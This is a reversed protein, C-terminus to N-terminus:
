PSHALCNKALWASHVQRFKAATLTVVAADVLEGRYFHFKPVTAVLDFGLKCAYSIAPLNSNLMVGHIVDIKLADVWYEIGMLGLDHLHRTRKMFCFGCLAAHHGEKGKPAELWAYGVPMVRPGDLECLIQTVKKAPDFSRVFEDHNLLDGCFTPEIRGRDRTAYYLASLMGDSYVLSGPSYPLVVIDETKYKWNEM